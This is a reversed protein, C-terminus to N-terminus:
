EGHETEDDASDSDKYKIDLYLVRFLYNIVFMLVLMSLIALFLEMEFYVATGLFVAGILASVVFALAAKKDKM